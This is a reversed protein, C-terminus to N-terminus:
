VTIQADTSGLKRKVIKEVLNKKSSSIKIIEHLTNGVNVFYPMAGL